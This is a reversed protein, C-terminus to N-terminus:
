GVSAMRLECDGNFSCHTSSATCLWLECQLTRRYDTERTPYSPEDDFRRPQYQYGVDRGSSQECNDLYHQCGACTSAEAEGVRTRAGANVMSCLEVSQLSVVLFHGTPSVDCFECESCHKKACILGVTSRHSKHHQLIQDEIADGHPLPLRLLM